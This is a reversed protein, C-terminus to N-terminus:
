AGLFDRLRAECDERDELADETEGEKWPHWLRALRTALDRAVARGAECGFCAVTMQGGFGTAYEERAPYAGMECVIEWVEAACEDFSATEEESRQWAFANVTPHCNVIERIWGQEAERMDEIYADSESYDPWEDEANESAAVAWLLVARSPTAGGEAFFLDEFDSTIQSIHDDACGRYWADGNYELGDATLVLNYAPSVFLPLSYALGRAAQVRATRLESASGVIREEVRALMSSDRAAKGILSAREHIMPALIERLDPRKVTAFVRAADLAKDSRAGECRLHSLCLEFNAIDADFDPSVM